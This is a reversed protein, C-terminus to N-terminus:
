RRRTRARTLLEAAVDTPETHALRGADPHLNALWRSHETALNASAARERLLVLAAHEMADTTPAEMGAVSRVVDRVTAEHAAQWVVHALPCNLAPDPAGIWIEDGRVRGRLRLARVVVVRCEDLGPAASRVASLERRLASDDIEVRPLRTHHEGELHCALRLVEVAPGASAMSALRTSDTVDGPALTALDRAVSREAQEFSDFLWALGQANALTGDDPLCRGLVDADQALRRAAAAGLHHEAFRVYTADFVSARLHRSARVHALVHFVLDAWPRAPLATM